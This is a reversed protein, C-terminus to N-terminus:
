VNSCLIKIVILLLNILWFFQSLKFYYDYFYILWTKKKQLASNISQIVNEYLTLNNEIFYSTRDTTFLFNNLISMSMCSLYEYRAWKNFEKSLIKRMATNKPHYELLINNLLFFFWEVEKLFVNSDKYFIIYNKLYTFYFFFAFIKCGIGFLLRFKTWKNRM